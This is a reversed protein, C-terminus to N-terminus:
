TCLLALGFWFWVYVTQSFISVSGVAWFMFFSEKGNFCVFLFGLVFLIFWFWFWFTKELPFLILNTESNEM